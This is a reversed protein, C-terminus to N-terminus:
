WQYPTRPRRHYLQAGGNDYVRHEEQLHPSPLGLRVLKARTVSSFLYYRSDADISWSEFGIGEYPYLTLELGVLIHPDAVWVKAAAAHDSIWVGAEQETRTYFMWQNSLAPENTAKMLAAPGFWCAAAVALGVMVGRLLGPKIRVWAQEIAMAALPIAILMM